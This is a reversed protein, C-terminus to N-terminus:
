LDSIGNENKNRKKCLFKNQTVVRVRVCFKLGRPFVVLFPIKVRAVSKLSLLQENVKTM